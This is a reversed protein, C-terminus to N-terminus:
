RIWWKCSFCNRFPSDIKDTSVESLKQEIWFRIKMDKVKNDTTFYICKLEKKFKLLWSFSMASFWVLITTTSYFKKLFMSPLIVHTNSLGTSKWVYIKDFLKVDKGYYNLTCEMLINLYNKYLNSNQIKKSISISNIIINWFNSAINSEYNTNEKTLKFLRRQALQDIFYKLREHQTVLGDARPSVNNCITSLLHQHHM